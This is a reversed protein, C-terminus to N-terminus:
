RFLVAAMTKSGIALWGARSASISVSFLCKAETCTISVSMTSGSSPPASRRKSLSRRFPSRWFETGFDDFLRDVERRLSEFPRLVQPVTAKAEGKQEAKVPVKAAETM